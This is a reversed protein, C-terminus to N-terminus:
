PNESNDEESTEEFLTDIQTDTIRSIDTTEQGEGGETRAIVPIQICKTYPVLNIDQGTFNIALVNVDSIKVSNDLKIEYSYTYLDDNDGTTNTNDIKLSTKNNDISVAQYILKQLGKYMTLDCELTQDAIPHGDSDVDVYIIPKNSKLVIEDYDEIIVPISITKTYIKDSNTKGILKVIFSDLVTITSVNNKISIECNFGGTEEDPGTNGSIEFLSENLNIVEFDVIKLKNYGSYMKFNFQIYDIKPYNQADVPIRIVSPTISVEINEVEKTITRLDNQITNVSNQLSNQVTGVSTQILNKIETDYKVLGEWDLYNSM